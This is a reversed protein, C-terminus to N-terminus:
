LKDAFLCVSIMQKIWDKPIIITLNHGLFSHNEAFIQILSHLVVRLINALTNERWAFQGVVAVNVCHVLLVRLRLPFKEYTLLPNRPFVHVVCLHTSYLMLLVQPSCTACSSSTSLVVM